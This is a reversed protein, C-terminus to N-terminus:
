NAVILLREINQSNPNRATHLYIFDVMYQNAREIDENSLSNFIQEMIATNNNDSKNDLIVKGSEDVCAKLAYELRTIPAGEIIEIKINHAIKYIFVEKLYMFLQRENVERLSVYDYMDLIRLNGISDGSVPKIDDFNFM